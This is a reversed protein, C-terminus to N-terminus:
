AVERANVETIRFSYKGGLKNEDFDRLAKEVAYDIAQLASDAYHYDWGYVSRKEALEKESYIERFFPEVSEVDYQYEYRIEVMYKM